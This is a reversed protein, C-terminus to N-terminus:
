PAAEAATTALDAPSLGAVIVSVNHRMMGIYTGEPTGADGLSDSYLEGGLRVDFGKARVAQQVAEITRPPVSSEVFLAPIRRSVIFAALNEVDATGAESATSIGQLGRVEIGYARGFYRFADHATILVRQPEPIAEIRKRVERDLSELEAVYRATNTEFEAAQQPFRRSMEDRVVRAADLWLTADFWFHPDYTKGDSEAVLLRERELREGVPVSKERLRGDGLIDAMRAELHLGNYLILDARALRSVDGASAKYLHPDVGSGMLATVQLNPGAVNRALDALMGTTTLIQPKGSRGRPDSPHGDRRCATAVSLVLAAAVLLRIAFPNM